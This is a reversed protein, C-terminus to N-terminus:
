FIYMFNFRTQRNNTVGAEVFFRNAILRVMPTTETKDSLGNMNRAELIFWPQIEDYGVEYFSFGARVSAFDHNLGTARYGRATAALYVRTTEYDVQVGPTFMTKSGAFDNGKVYGVGGILWWNAQADPLNWRKVLRTYTLSAAERALRKDDSRASLGEVGLADRSTIAYNLFAEQWNPSFDGMVMVSEKFGMPGAFCAPAFLYLILFSGLLSLRRM